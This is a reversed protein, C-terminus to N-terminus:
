KQWRRSETKQQERVVVRIKRVEPGPMASTSQHCFPCVLDEKRVIRKCSPNPCRM